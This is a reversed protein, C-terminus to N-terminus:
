KGIGLSKETAEDLEGTVKLGYKSQYLRLSEKTRSGMIGDSPGPDLGEEKLAKQIYIIDEVQHTIARQKSSTKEFRDLEKNFKYRDGTKGNRVITGDATGYYDGVGCLVLSGSDVMIEQDLGIQTIAAKGTDHEKNRVCCGKPLEPCTENGKGRVMTITCNGKGCTTFLGGAYIPPMYIGLLTIILLAKNTMKM